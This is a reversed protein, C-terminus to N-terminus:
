AWGEPPWRRWIGPIVLVRVPPIRSLPEDSPGSGLSHVRAWVPTAEFPSETDHVEIKCVENPDFGEELIWGMLLDYAQVDSILRAWSEHAVDIVALPEPTVM